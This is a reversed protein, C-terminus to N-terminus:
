KECVKISEEEGLFKPQTFLLYIDLVAKTKALYERTNSAPGIFPDKANFAVADIGYHHCIFLARQNHFEQSIITFKNLGFIKKARVMSDFTRFGAFDLTICNEPVGLTILYNKMDTPEDYWDAHNDGTVLIHKIKGAHYLEAAAEMRYKFYPNIHFGLFKSAGPVVGVENFPIENVDSYIRSRTSSIIWRNCFFMFLFLSLFFFLIGKLIKRLLSKYYFAIM